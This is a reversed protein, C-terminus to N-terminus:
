LERVWLKQVGEPVIANGNGIDNGNVAYYKTTPSMLNRKPTSYPLNCDAVIVYVDYPGACDSPLRTHDVTKSYTYGKGYLQGSGIYNDLLEPPYHPMMCVSHGNAVLGTLLIANMYGVVSCSSDLMINSPKPAIVATMSDALLHAKTYAMLKAHLEEYGAHDFTELNVPVTQGQHLAQKVEAQSPVGTLNMAQLVLTKPFKAMTQEPLQDLDLFYPISGSLLIEYHRFCDWGAKKMTVGFFADNYQSYYAKETDFIYTSM